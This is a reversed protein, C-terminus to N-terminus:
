PPRRRAAAWAAARGARRAPRSVAPRRRGVAAATPERSRAPPAAPAALATRRSISLLLGVAALSVVLSTGGFSVFPLTIGTFPVVNTTVMMNLLAQWVLLGTVGAALLRGFSDPARYMILLGRWALLAFLVLVLTVGILGLEEGIIAFIADTHANPLFYAKARGAGLGVGTLGGSGQAILTQATHWCLGQPDAWPNAWCQLRDARYAAATALWGLTAVGVAVLGATHFLNAGAAWFVTITTLVIVVTSGLDPQRMVLLCILGVLALCPLADGTLGTARGARESFWYAMFVVLALKALETPQLGPLAGSLFLWRRAGYQEVGIGPVLVLVLAGLAALIAPWAWRRWRRYDVGALFGMVTLGILLAALHRLLFYKEDGFENHAIIFSASYVMVIGMVVLALVSVLVILDPPRRVEGNV